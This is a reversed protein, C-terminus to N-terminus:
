KLFPEWQTGHKPAVFETLLTDRKEIVTVFPYSHISHVTSQFGTAKCHLRREDDQLDGTLSETINLSHIVGNMYSAFENFAGVVDECM